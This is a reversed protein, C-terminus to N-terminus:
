QSTRYLGFTQILPCARSQHITLRVKSATVPEFRDLKKYGITTGKAIPKWAEGELVEITYRCVRQGLAIHEQILARDFVTPQGLDVVLSAATIGDETAWYTTPDGDLAKEPGFRPDKQRINSATASQNLALNNQFTADIVQRLELLRRADNEHILGRRDPPINLLLVGNRGVSKYYIDLLQELSKVEGDEEPHYFWGPRISVDCEAPYWMFEISANNRAAEDAYRAGGGDMFWRQHGVWDRKRIEETVPQVSWETERAVGSENGVWRIDPGCGFILAQPQLNRIVTYYADWDYEQRKGNPGEGCAGDFWVETVEGYNSLLERLQNQFFTNYAPSDGYTREHRDWPSLYIGLKLGAQRCADAVERVVDGKGGKWPSNKVSHETYASPWLCFGDHHKATLILMQFGADKLVRAWQTADFASPNFLAPDETGEGWERNTFTNMGFHAFAITEMAQWAIQQPSPVPALPAPPRGGMDGGALVAMPFLILGFLIFFRPWMLAAKRYGFETGIGRSARRRPSAGKKRIMGFVASLILRSSPPLHESFVGRREM